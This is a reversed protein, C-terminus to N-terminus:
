KLQFERETHEYIFESHTKATDFNIVEHDIYKVSGKSTFAMEDGSLLLKLRFSQDDVLLLQNINDIYNSQTNIILYLNNNYIKRDMIFAIHIGDDEVFTSVYNTSPYFMRIKDDEWVVREEKEDVVKYALIGKQIDGYNWYVPKAKEEESSYTQSLEVELLEDSTIETIPEYTATETKPLVILVLVIIFLGFLMFILVKKEIGESQEDAATSNNIAKQILDELLESKRYKQTFEDIYKRAGLINNSVIAGNVKQCYLQEIGDICRSEYTKKLNEDNLEQLLDYADQIKYSDLLRVVQDEPSQVEEIIVEPNDVEFAAEKELEPEIEKIPEDSVEEVKENTEIPVTQLEKAETRVSVPDESVHEQDMSGSVCSFSEDELISEPVYNPKSEIGELELQKPAELSLNESRPICTSFQGSNQYTFFINESFAIQRSGNWITATLFCEESTDLHLQAYPIFLKFDEYITDEYGPVFEEGVAVEGSVTCYQKDTDILPTGDKKYFYVAANTNQNRMNSVHFRLHVMIGMNNVTSKSDYDVWIREIQGSVRKSANEIAEETEKALQEELNKNFALIGPLISNYHDMAKEYDSRTKFFRYITLSIAWLLGGFVTLAYLSGPIKANILTFSIYHIITLVFDFVLLGILFFVPACLRWQIEKTFVPEKVPKIPVSKSEKQYRQAFHRRIVLERTQDNESWACNCCHCTYNLPLPKRLSIDLNEDFYDGMIGKAMFKGASAGFIAGYPGFISGLAGGVFEGVKGATYTAGFRSAANVGKETLSRDPQVGVIERFCLPCKNDM